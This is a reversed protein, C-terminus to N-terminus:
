TRGGGPASPPSHDPVESGAAAGWVYFVKDLVRLLSNPRPNGPAPLSSSDAALLAERDAETLSAILDSYFLIWREYDGIYDDPRSSRVREERHVNHAAQFRSVSRRARSDMIPLRQQTAWHLFKTAFSYHQGCIQPDCPRLFM